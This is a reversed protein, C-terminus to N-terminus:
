KEIPKLTVSDVVRIKCGKASKFKQSQNICNSILQKTCGLAKAVTVIDSGYAINGDKDTVEILCDRYKYLRRSNSPKINEFSNIKIEKMKKIGKDIYIISM